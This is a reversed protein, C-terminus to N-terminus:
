VVPFCRIVYWARIFVRRSLQAAITAQDREISALLRDAEDQWGDKMAAKVGDAKLATTEVRRKLREVQDISLRDHRIFLDRLAVYLDRQSKLITLVLINSLCTSLMSQPIRAHRRVSNCDLALTLVYLPLCAPGVRADSLEAFRQTHQAVQELGQQVGSSLECDDARWCRGNIETVVRIVNTLRSLDGQPVTTNFGLAAMLSDGLRLSSTESTISPARPITPSTPVSSATSTSLHTSLYTPRLFAPPARVAAAERRKIVREALVCIRQWQEILPSVKGRVTSYRGEAIYM